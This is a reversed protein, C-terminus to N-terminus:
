ERVGTMGLSIWGHDAGRVEEPQLQRVQRLGVTDFLLRLYRPTFLARHWNPHDLDGKGNGYTFLRGAAWVCPDRQPNLRYWGDRHTQDNGNVEAEVLTQCVKLGDPVWIELQGKPKLIRVWERLTEEVKFWPVHELIHSAYVLDFSCEKFPLPRSADWVYDVNWAPCINLTEFGDLRDPGPGIELKRTEKAENATLARSMRYRTVVGPSRTSRRLKRGVKKLLTGIM